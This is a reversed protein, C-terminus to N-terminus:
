NENEPRYGCERCVCEAMKHGCRPCINDQSADIMIAFLMMGFITGVTLDITPGLEMETIM